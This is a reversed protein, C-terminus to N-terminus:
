SRLRSSSKLGTASGNARSSIWRALAKLDIGYCTSREWNDPERSELSFALGILHFWEKQAAVPYNNSSFHFEETGERVVAGDPSGDSPQM